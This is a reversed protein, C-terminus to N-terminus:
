AGTVLTGTSSQTSENRSTPGQRGPGRSVERISAGASRMTLLCTGSRSPLPCVYPGDPIWEHLDYEVVVPLGLRGNIIAATQLARAYPSSLMLKARYLRPDGSTMESQKIGEPTLPVFDLQAGVLGVEDALRWDAEGHRVFYFVTM